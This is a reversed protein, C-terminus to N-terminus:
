QYSNVSFFRPKKKKKKKTEELLSVALPCLWGQELEGAPVAVM